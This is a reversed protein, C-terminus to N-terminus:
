TSSFWTALIEFTTTEFPVSFHKIVDHVLFYLLQYKLRQPKFFYLPFTRSFTRSLTKIVDHVKFALLQYKM